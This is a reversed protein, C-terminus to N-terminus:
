IKSSVGDLYLEYHKKATEGDWNIVKGIEEWSANNKLMTEITKIHGQQVLGVRVPIKGSVIDEVFQKAPSNNQEM